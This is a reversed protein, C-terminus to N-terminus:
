SNLKKLDNKAKEVKEKNTSNNIIDKLEKELQVKQNDLYKSLGNVIAKNKINEKVKSNNLYKSLGNVIAENKMNKNM